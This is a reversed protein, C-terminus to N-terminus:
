SADVGVCGTRYFELIYKDTDIVGAKMQAGYGKTLHDDGNVAGNGVLGEALVSIELEGGNSGGGTFTYAIKAAVTTAARVITVSNVGPTGLDSPRFLREGLDWLIGGQVLNRYSEIDRVTYLSDKGTSLEGNVGAGGGWAAGIGDDIILVNGFDLPSPPNKIGSKITSYVGPIKIKKGEFIFSTSM